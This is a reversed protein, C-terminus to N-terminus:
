ELAWKQSMSSDKFLIFGQVTPLDCGEQYEAYLHQRKDEEDRKAPM